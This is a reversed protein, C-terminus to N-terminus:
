GPSGFVDNGEEEGALKRALCEVAAAVAPGPASGVDFRQGEIGYILLRVPMRGLTRALEVGEAVGFGHTTTRVSDLSRTTDRVDFVMIKGVSAGTVVADILIVSEAEYWMELLALGDGCHEHAEIGLERLRRAVLLGAADDGRDATGCGIIRPEVAVEEGGEAEPFPHRVLHM